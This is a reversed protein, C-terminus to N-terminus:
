PIFTLLSYSENFCFHTSNFLIFLHTFFSVLVNRRWQRWWRGQRQEVVATAAAKRKAEAAIADAEEMSVRDM